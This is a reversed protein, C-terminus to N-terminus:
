DPSVGQVFSRHRRPQCVLLQQVNAGTVQCSVVSRADGERVRDGLQPPPALGNVITTRVVLKHEPVFVIEEILEIQNLQKRAYSFSGERSWPRTLRIQM